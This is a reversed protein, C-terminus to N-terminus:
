ILGAPKILSQCLSFSMQWHMGILNRGLMMGYRIAILRLGVGDQFTKATIYVLRTADSSAVLWILM